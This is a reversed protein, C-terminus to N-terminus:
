RNRAEMEAVGDRGYKVHLIRQNLRGPPSTVDYSLNFRRERDALRLVTDLSSSTAFQRIRAPTVQTSLAASFFGAVDEARHDWTDAFWFVYAAGNVENGVSYVRLEVEPVSRLAYIRVGTGGNVIGGLSVCGAQQCYASRLFAIHHVHTTRVQAALYAARVQAATLQADATRPQAQASM